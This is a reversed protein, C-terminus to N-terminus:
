ADGPEREIRERWDDLVDQLTQTWPTSPRWGLLEQAQTADACTSPLDTGRVRTPDVQVELTIGALAQLDALIDRIRRPRGSALNLITGAPLADRKAICAAYAECVDRVDLFDRWTDINGVQLLPPQLGAAIRAVQRAFAAVVFQPSQGPGTHNVPRLRVCRLGRGTMSGLALDAAAKTASYLSMPALPADETVKTGTRYSYGYADASSIFLMLCGPAHRLIARALHLTGHLNVQWAHDENRDAAPVTAIGALHICVDPAAAQVAAAVAQSERIDIAPAIITSDPYAAALRATLHRGVFGTAGTM